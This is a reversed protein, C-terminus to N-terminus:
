TSLHISLTYITPLLIVIEIQTIRIAFIKEKGKLESKALLKLNNAFIVVCLQQECLDCGCGCCM